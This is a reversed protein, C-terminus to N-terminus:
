ALGIGKERERESEKGDGSTCFQRWDWKIPRQTNKQEIWKKIRKKKKEEM